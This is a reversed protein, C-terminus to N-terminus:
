ANLLSDSITSIFLALDCFAALRLTLLVRDVELVLHTEVLVRLAVEVHDALVLVQGIGCCVHELM